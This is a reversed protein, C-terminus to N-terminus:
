PLNMHPGTSLTYTPPVRAYLSPALSVSTQRLLQRSPLWRLKNVSPLPSSFEPFEVIRCLAAGDPM